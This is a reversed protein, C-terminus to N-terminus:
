GETLLDTGSGESKRLYPKKQTQGTESVPSYLPKRDGFMKEYPGVCLVVGRSERRKSGITFRFYTLYQATHFGYIFRCGDKGREM